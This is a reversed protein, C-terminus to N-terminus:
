VTRFNTVGKSKMIQVANTKLQDNNHFGEDLCIVRVPQLEAMAKILEHTLEKELCILLQGEAVSFVTKGELILQQIPTTLEFGSKLLLEFLIAEQKAKPSIHDIHLELATQIAEPTKEINEQWIKFNSQQLKFVKFGLDPNAEPKPEEGLKLQQPKQKESEVEANIKKIVRRIREKGIDAISKYGARFAESNEDTPEPLQVCIYERNGGDEKNLDMVAPATTCSGAFFDLIIFDKEQHFLRLTQKILSSPKPTDFISINEFLEKIESNANRTTGIEEGDWINEPTRGEQEILYIKRIIKTEDSNFKIEGKRIKDQINEKTWRWGNEPSLIINGKPTEINFILTKRFNPSRVDGSRWPGKPDNDPNSYNINDKETQPM